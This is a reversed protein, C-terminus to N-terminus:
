NFDDVLLLWLQRPNSCLQFESLLDSFVDLAVSIIFHQRTAVLNEVTSCYGQKTADDALLCDFKILGLQIIGIAVVTVFVVWWFIRYKPLHHGMRYFFLLFNVKITWLGVYYLVAATALARLVAMGPAGTSIVGENSPPSSPPDSAGYLVEIYLESIIAIAIFVLLAFIM